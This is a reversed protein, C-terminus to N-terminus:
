HERFDGTEEESEYRRTDDARRMDNASLEGPFGAILYVIM